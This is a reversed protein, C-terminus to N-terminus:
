DSIPTRPLTTGKQIRRVVIIAVGGMTVCGGIVMRLTLVEGLCLISLAVSFVPLLLSFPIVASMANRALLKQWVIHTTGVFAVQFALICGIVLWDADPLRGWSSADLAMSGTFVFPVALGNMACIFTMPPTPPLQKMRMYAFGLSFSSVLLIAYGALEGGSTRGGLMIAIGVIGVAIGTWTKWRIREGFAIWGILASFIVQSQLVISAISAPVYSMGIVLLGQHIVSMFLAIQFLIRITPWGPWRFFPLFLLGTLAFRLTLATLPATETVILKIAIVNAAWIMVVLLALLIDRLSM